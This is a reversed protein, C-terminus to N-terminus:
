KFKFTEPVVMVWASPGAAARMEQQDQLLAGAAQM